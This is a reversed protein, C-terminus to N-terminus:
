TSLSMVEPGLELYLLAPSLFPVYYQLLERRVIISPQICPILL